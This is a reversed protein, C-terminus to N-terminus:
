IQVSRYYALAGPHLTIPMTEIGSRFDISRAAANKAALAPQAAFFGRTLAEALSDPMRNTVLLFNRVVLTTVAKPLQYTSAPVTATGYEQYKARMAPLVDSLDILRLPIQAALDSIAKTPLGGSWFFADIRGARLGAASDDLTMEQRHLATERGLGATDLLRNAILEVGSTRSGVSVRKGRLDSVKEIASNKPVVIQLYDDHMRALARLSDGGPQTLATAAADAASLGVDARDNLLRQINDVSGGSFLVSPPSIALDRAWQQSLVMSLQTYVGSQNGASISLLPRDFRERCGSLLGVLMLLV